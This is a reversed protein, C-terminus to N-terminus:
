KTHWLELLESVLKQLESNKKDLDPSQYGHVLQNRVAHLATTKDFQEVSLEGQSYLHNILSSTPFRGIPILAQEAQKRMMAEFVGWFALFAGESEGLALLKEGNDIKAFIQEWSLLIKGNNQESEGLSIDDGTVLLFRWGNYKAITEALERFQDVSVRNIKSKIEIIYGDNQSKMAVLDPRYSGLNFPLNQKNPEIFVKYGEKEYKQAVRTTLADHIDNLSNM